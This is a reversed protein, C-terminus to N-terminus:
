NDLFKRMANKHANIGKTYCSNKFANLLSKLEERTLDKDFIMDTVTELDLNVIEESTLKISQEKQKLLITLEKDKRFNCKLIEQNKNQEEFEILDDETPKKDVICFIQLKGRGKPTVIKNEIIYGKTILFESIDM